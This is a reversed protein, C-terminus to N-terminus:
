DVQVILATINDKGGAANAADVLAQCAEEPDVGAGVITGIVQDDVEDWLGDCCLLFIDGPALPGQYVTPEVEDKSGLARTVVNRNAMRSLDEPSLEPRAARIEEALSHDRSIRTLEANRYLYLRADGVNAASYHTEGIALAVITAGMRHHAADAQAVKRIHANAVKMGVRLLNSGMSTKKDIPYPWAELPALLKSRFFREVEDVSLGAAVDGSARGGMGDAVIFLGQETFLGFADENDERVQGQHTVCAATLQRGTSSASATMPPNKVM